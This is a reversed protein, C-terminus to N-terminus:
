YIGPIQGPLIPNVTVGVSSSIRILQQEISALSTPESEKYKWIEVRMQTHWHPIKILPYYKDVIRPFVVLSLGLPIKIDLYDASGIGAIRMGMSLWFATKWKPKTKLSSAGVLLTHVNLILPMRQDSIPHFKGQKGLVPKANFSVTYIKDWASSDLNLM